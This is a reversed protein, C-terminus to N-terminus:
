KRKLDTILLDDPPVEAGDIIAEPMGQPLFGGPIWQDNTGAENGSPVRLHYDGPDPVDVRIVGEGDFYGEPLGLAQELARLDGGTAEMLSDLERTPFVYTTGDMHGIGYDELAESTMFRSAGGDFKELHHEIFEQPLYESPDPRSGKDMGLIDDRVDDSLPSHDYDPNPEAGLPHDSHDGGADSEASNHHDANSHDSGTDSPDAPSDRIPEHTNFEHPPTGGDGGGPPPPPEPPESGGATPATGEGGSTPEHASPAPEGEGTSSPEVGGSSPAPENGGSASPDGGGSPAPEGGEPTPESPTTSEPHVDGGSSAPTSAQTEAPVPADGTGGSTPADVPASGNGASDPAGAGTEPAKSGGGGPTSAEPARPAPTETAPGPTPDVPARGGTATGSPGASPTSEPVKINDLNEGIRGAQSTIGDTAKTAGAAAAGAERAAGAGTRGEAGAAEAAIRAEASAGDVAPAAEGVGPIFFSGVQATDYGLAAFPRGKEVDEWDVLGKVTDLSGQPDSIVKEALLAPNTVTALSEAMGEYTKLAGQPDYIFRTPDLQKLGEATQAVFKFGGESFDLTNNFEFAIAGGVDQGFVNVFQKDAWHEFQMTLSDLANIGQSFMQGSADAERKMNGLVTKIESAIQKIKDIPNHGTFIGGITELVGSPSLQHLLDRVADQTGQVTAAFADIQGALAQAQAAIGTLGSQVDGVAKVMQGGDPIEHGGLGTGSAGVQGAVGSMATAFSRWASATARMQAPDGDPWVQGVFSEVLTWGLPAAIGGGLPPPMGPAHFAGPDTPAPVPPEGGGVTSAANAHGYNAASMQVGFGIRRCANVASGAADLLAKGSQTYSTAFMLGAPDHGFQAGAGSLASSLTEVAAAASEGDGGIASGTSALAAPDVAIPGTM